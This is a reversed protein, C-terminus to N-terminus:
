IEANDFDMEETATASNITLQNPDGYDDADMVNTCKGGRYLMVEKRIKSVVQALETSYKYSSNGDLPINPTALTMQGAAMSITKGGYMSVILTEDAENGIVKLGKVSYKFVEANAREQDIELVDTDSIKFYDDLAAFHVNLNGFASILDKDAIGKGKVSHTDGAGIGKKIVYSYNCYNDKLSAATIEITDDIVITDKLFNDFGKGTKIVFPNEKSGLAPAVDPADDTFGPKNLGTEKKAKAM